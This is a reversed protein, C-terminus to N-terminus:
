EIYNSYGHKNMRMLIEDRNFLTHCKYRSSSTELSCIDTTDICRVCSDGLMYTFYVYHSAATNSELVWVITAAADDNSEQSDQSRYKVRTANANLWKAIDQIYNM